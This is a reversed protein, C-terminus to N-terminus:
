DMRKLRSTAIEIAKVVHDANVNFKGEFEVVYTGITEESVIFTFENNVYVEAFLREHNNDDTIKIDIKM